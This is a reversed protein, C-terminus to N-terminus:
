PTVESGHSLAREYGANSALIARVKRFEKKILSVLDNSHDAAGGRHGEFANCVLM